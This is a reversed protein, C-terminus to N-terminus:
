GLEEITSSTSGSTAVKAKKSKKPNSIEDPDTNVLDITSPADLLVEKLKEKTINMINEDDFAWWGSQDSSLDRIHAVYHGQSASNGKHIIIGSLEYILNSNPTTNQHKSEESMKVDQEHKVGNSHQQKKPSTKHNSNENTTTTTTTSTTPEAELDIEMPQTNEDNKSENKGSESDVNKKPVYNSMDLIGPFTIKNQLKKKRATNRDYVFRMLQLTLVPPLHGSLEIKRIADQKSSCSECYYQNSETLKEESLFEDLCESM